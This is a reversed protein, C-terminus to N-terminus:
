AARHCPQVPSARLDWYPEGLLFLHAAAASQAIVVTSLSQTQSNAAELEAKINRHMPNIPKLLFISMMNSVHRQMVCDNRQM